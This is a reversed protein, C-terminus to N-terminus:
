RSPIPGRSFSTQFMRHLTLSLYGSAGFSRFSNVNIDAQLGLGNVADGVGFSLAASADLRDSGPGGRWQGYTGSVALGLTNEM